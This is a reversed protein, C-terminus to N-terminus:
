KGVWEPKPGEVAAGTALMLEAEAKPMPLARGALTSYYWARRAGKATTIFWIERPAKTNM